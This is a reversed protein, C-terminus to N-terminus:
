EKLFETHNSGEEKTEEQEEKQWEIPDTSDPFLCKILENDKHFSHLFAEGDIDFDENPPSELKKLNIFTGKEEDRKRKQNKNTNVCDFNM